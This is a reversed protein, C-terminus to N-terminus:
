KNLPTIRWTFRLIWGGKWDHSRFTRIGWRHCWTHQCWLQAQNFPTSTSVVWTIGFEVEVFTVVGGLNFWSIKTGEPLSVYSVPIDGNKLLFNMKMEPGNEWQWTLKGSHILVYPDRNWPQHNTEVWRFFILWTLNSWKGLSSCLFIQFCWRSFM